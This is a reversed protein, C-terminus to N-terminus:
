TKPKFPFLVGPYDAIWHLFQVNAEEQREWGWGGGLFDNDQIIKAQTQFPHM